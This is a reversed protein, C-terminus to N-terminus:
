CNTLLFEHWGTVARTKKNNTKLTYVFATGGYTVATMNKATGGAKESAVKKTRCTAERM